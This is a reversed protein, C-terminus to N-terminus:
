GATLEEIYIQGQENRQDYGKVERDWFSLFVWSTNLISYNMKRLRAVM